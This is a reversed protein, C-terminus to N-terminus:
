SFLLLMLLLCVFCGSFCPEIKNIKGQSCTQISYDRLRVEARGQTSLLAPIDLYSDSTRLFRHLSFLLGFSRMPKESVCDILQLFQLVQSFGGPCAPRDATIPVQLLCNLLSPANYSTTPTHYLSIWFLFIIDPGYLLFTFHLFASSGTETRNLLFYRNESVSNGQASM